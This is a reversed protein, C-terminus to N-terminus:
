EGAGLVLAGLNKLTGAINGTFDKVYKSADLLGKSSVEYWKRNPKESTAQKIVMELDEEIAKAEPKKEEPLQSILQRVQQDLEELQSKLEGPAQQQIMNTCNTLTQGVQGYNDRGIHNHTSHDDKMILKEIKIERKDFLALAKDELAAQEREKRTEVGNLLDSLPQDVRERNVTVRIQTKGDREDLIADRYSVLVEPHGPVAVMEMPSLAKIYAHISEFHSRIVKLLARRAGIYQGRLWVTITHKEYDAQLRAEAGDDALVVGTRWRDRGESLHHTRTIFRPLVGHPLIPYQYQFVLGKEPEWDGLPPTQDPLLEPVLMQDNGDVPFCLDFKEMLDMVYNVHLPKPWRDKPLVERLKRRTLLGHKVERLPENTVVRYIGDTAWEPNLVSLESLKVEDPFSVVTGLDALRRLLKKQEEEEEVGYQKCIEQYCDESFYDEGNEKMAALRTKVDWCRAPFREEAELMRAAEKLIAAKLPKITQRSACDTRFFHELDVGHKSAVAERDIDFPHHKQRNMVVLMPSDGGFARALRLWYEADQKGRDHRGDVMVVYLSRHTMFFQHTGHMIEQGGFDWLTLEAKGDALKVPLSTISIGDTRPRNKVFPKGQLADVMSSKGVEGRGVFIVKVERLARGENGRTNFYYDLIEAPKAPDLQGYPKCAQWKPGLVSPPLALVPNGHLFLAKLSTLRGIEPPLAALQNDYIELETLASLQGIEPPLTTLQNGSVYLQTLAFLQGIEPPLATLQNGSVSLETLASLQGIEPPLTTLGNGDLDLARLASLQGIEPPLATLGLSSLDLHTGQKGQRRCAQIERLAKNYAKQEDPTM